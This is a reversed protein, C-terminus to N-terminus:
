AALTRPQRLTFWWSVLLRSLVFATFVSTVIGIALTVAFGRVPGSGVQFLVIAAILTTINADLITTLARSYGAEVANAPTRGNRIEERIREFILVNADVAMGITLIIGAIGPLTLTAQLGSLAGLILIVNAFLATNSFVGFLGYAALMFAIVGVFGIIMANRGAIVSDAGLEASVSRQQIVELPVALAGSNLLSSLDEAEAITFSGEIFGQGQCIPSRINPASIVNGDLVIAFRRQVNNRTLECFRRGASLSFSFNVVPEGFNVSDPNQNFGQSARTLDEGSMRPLREVLLYPEAPEETPLLLQRPSVRETELAQDIERPDDSAVMHFTMQATRGIIDRLRQPDEVGPAQVLVRELGQRQISPETVGLADVRRRIVEISDNVATRRELNLWAQTMAIRVERGEASRIELDTADSLRELPQPLADLAGLAATMQDENLVTFRLVVDTAVDNPVVEYGGARVDAERLLRAVDDIVRELRLEALAAMDAEMLLHAGGRLDLGLNLSTNPLFRWVGRPTLEGTEADEVFRAEPSTLNPVAFLAGLFVLFLVLATKWRAFYLM